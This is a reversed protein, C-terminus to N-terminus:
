WTLVTDFPSPKNDRAAAYVEHFAPHEDTGGSYGADQYVQVIEWSSDQAFERCEDIQGEIPIEGDAQMKTSIRRCISVKMERKMISLEPKPIIAEYKSIV